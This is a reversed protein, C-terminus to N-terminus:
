LEAAFGAVVIILRNVYWSVDLATPMNQYSPFECSRNSCQM